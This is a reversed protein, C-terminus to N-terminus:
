LMRFPQRQAVGSQISFCGLICVARSRVCLELGDCHIGALSIIEVPSHRVSYTLRWHKGAHSASRRHDTFERCAFRMGVQCLAHPLLVALQRSVVHRELRCVIPYRRGRLFLVFDCRPLRGAWIVVLHVLLALDGPDNFHDLLEFREWSRLRCAEHHHLNDGHHAAKSGQM